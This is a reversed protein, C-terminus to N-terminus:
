RSQGEQYKGGIASKLVRIKVGDAIRLTLENNDVEEVTGIVGGVTVVRDGKAVSNQVERRARQQRSQQWFMWVTMAILLLFFLWYISTGGTKHM